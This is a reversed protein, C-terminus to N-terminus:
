LRSMIKQKQINFEAETIVGSDKLKALHELNEIGTHSAEPKNIPSIAIAIILGIFPFFLSLWFFQAWSRGKGSAIKAAFWAPLLWFLSIIFLIILLEFGGINKFM